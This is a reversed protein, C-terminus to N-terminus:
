GSVVTGDFIEVPVEAANALTKRFLVEIALRDDYKETIVAIHVAAMAKEFLGVRHLLRHSDREDDSALNGVVTSFSPGNAADRMQDIM